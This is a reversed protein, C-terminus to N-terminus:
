GRGEDDDGRLRPDLGAVVGFWHIGAQAPFVGTSILPHDNGHEAHSHRGPCEADPKLATIREPSPKARVALLPFHM